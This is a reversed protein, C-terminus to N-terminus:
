KARFMEKVPEKHDVVLSQNYNEPKKKRGSHTIETYSEINNITRSYRLFFTLIQLKKM